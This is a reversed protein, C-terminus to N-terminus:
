HLSKYIVLIGKNSEKIKSKSKIIKFIKSIKLYTNFINDSRHYKENLEDWSPVFGEFVNSYYVSTLESKKMHGFLKKFNNEDEKFAKCYFESNFNHPLLATLDIGNAADNVFLQSILEPLQVVTQM